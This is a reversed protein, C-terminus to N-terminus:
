ESKNKRQDLKKQALERCVSLFLERDEIPKTFFASAGSAYAKSSDVESFGTIIIVEANYDYEMIKQMASVGSLGPMNEDMVVLDPDLMKYKEFGDLGSDALGKVIFNNAAFLQYMYQQIFPSDDVILVTYAIDDNM